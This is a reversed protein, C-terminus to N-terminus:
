LSSKKQFFCVACGNHWGLVLLMGNEDIWKKGLELGHKGKYELTSVVGGRHGSYVARTSERAPAFGVMALFTKMM